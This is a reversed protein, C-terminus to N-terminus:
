LNFSTLQPCDGANLTKLVDTSQPLIFKGICPHPLFSASTLSIRSLIGLIEWGDRKELFYFASDHVCLCACVCVPICMCGYAHVCPHACVSLCHRHWAPMGVCVCVHWCACVSACKCVDNLSGRHKDCM